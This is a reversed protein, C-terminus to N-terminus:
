PKYDPPPDYRAMDLPPPPAIEANPKDTDKFNSSDQLALSTNINSLALNVNDPTTHTIRTNKIKRKETCKLRRIIYICFSILVTTVIIAAMIIIARIMYEDYWKKGQLPSNGVVPEYYCFCMTLLTARISQTYPITRVYPKLEGSFSNLNFLKATAWTIYEEHVKTYKISQCANGTRVLYFPFSIPLIMSSTTGDKRCCFNYVTNLGYKGDPLVGEATQQNSYLAAADDWRISSDLFGIPCKGTYRFICYSGFPWTKFNSVPKYQIKSCFKLYISNSTLAGGFHNPTTWKNEPNTIQKRQGTRWIFNSNNPCGSATMLLTYNGDPWESDQVNEGSGFIKMSFLLCLILSPSTM